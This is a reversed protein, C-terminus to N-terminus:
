SEKRTPLQDWAVLGHPPWDCTIQEIDNEEAVVAFGIERDIKKIAENAAFRESHINMGAALCTLRAVWRGYGKGRESELVGYSAAVTGYNYKLRGYGVAKGESNYFLFHRTDEQYTWRYMYQMEPTIEKQSGTLFKACSNRILRLDEWQEATGRRAVYVSKLM